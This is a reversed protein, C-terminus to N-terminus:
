WRQQELVAEAIERFRRRWTEAGTNEILWKRGAAGMAARKAAPLAEMALIDRVLEREDGPPHLFGTVGDQVTETLGGSAAAIVPKAFDYAECTVIGLPEWWLSPIIMARCRRLAERKGIGSIMGLFKLRPNRAAAERVRESLPGEGAIRLEPAEEGLSACIAEWVRLLVEVGKVDVLRSLFLYYGADTAAPAAPMPEWAHRLAYVRERPLGAGIYKDRMFESVCIWGRVADLWGSRHLLKLALAFIASKVMSQQWVGHRIETGYQGKLPEETIRGDVFLTGGVSFPRYNHAYQIVPVGARLAGHYLSPSGVPFVNHMLLLDPQHAAISQELRRRSAPNYITRWSQSLANPAGPGTWERSDLPFSLVEFDDELLHQIKHVSSEEGGFHLYRNFIQLIRRRNM